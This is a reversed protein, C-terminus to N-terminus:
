EAKSAVQIVQYDTEDPCWTVSVSRTIDNSATLIRTIVPVSFNAKNLQNKVREIRREALWKNYQRKEESSQNQSVDFQLLLYGTGAQTDKALKDLLSGYHGEFYSSNKAYPIDVIHTKNDCQAVASGAFLLCVAALSKM